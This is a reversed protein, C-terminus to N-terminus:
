EPPLEARTPPGGIPDRGGMRGGLSHAEIIVNAFASRLIGQFMTQESSSLQTLGREDAAFAARRDKEYDARLAATPSLRSVARVMRVHHIDIAPRLFSWWGHQPMAQVLSCIGSAGDTVTVHRGIDKHFQTLTVQLRVDSAAAVNERTLLPVLGRSWVVSFGDVFHAVRLM